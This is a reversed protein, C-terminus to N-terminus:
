RPFFHTFEPHLMVGSILVSILPLAWPQTTPKLRHCEHLVMECARLELQPREWRPTDHDPLGLPPGVQRRRGGQWEVPQAKLRDHHLPPMSM